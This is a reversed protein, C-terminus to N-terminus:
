CSEQCHFKPSYKRYLTIVLAFALACYYFSYGMPQPLLSEILIDLGIIFHFLRDYYNLFRKPYKLIIFIWLATILVGSVPIWYSTLYFWLHFSGLYLAIFM